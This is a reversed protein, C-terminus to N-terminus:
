PWDLNSTVGTSIGATKLNGEWFLALTQTMRWQGATVWTQIFIKVVEPVSIGTRTPADM